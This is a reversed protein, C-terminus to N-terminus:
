SSRWVASAAKIQQHPLQSHPSASSNMSAIWRAAPCSIHLFLDAHSPCVEVAGEGGVRALRHLVKDLRAAPIGIVFVSVFPPEIILPATVQPLTERVSESLLM